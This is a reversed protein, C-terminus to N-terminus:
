KIVKEQAQDDGSTSNMKKKFHMVSAGAAGIGPLAKKQDLSATMEARLRAKQALEERYLEEKGKYTASTDEDEPIQNIEPNSPEVPQLISAQESLVTETKDFSVSVPRVAKIVIKESDKGPHYSMPRSTAGEPRRTIAPLDKIGESKRKFDQMMISALAANANAPRSIVPAPVEELVSEEVKSAEGPTETHKPAVEEVPEPKVDADSANLAPSSAIKKDLTEEAIDHQSEVPHSSVEEIPSSQMRKPKPRAKTSHTLEQDSRVPSPPGSTTTPTVDESSSRIAPRPATRPPERPSIKDSSRVATITRQSENLFSSRLASSNIDKTSESPALEPVSDMEARNDEDLATESTNVVIPEPSTETRIPSPERKPEVVVKEETKGQSPETTTPKPDSQAHKDEPKNDLSGASSTRSMKDEDGKRKGMFMSKIGFRIGRKTKTEQETHQEIKTELNTLIEPVGIEILFKTLAHESIHFKSISAQFEAKKEAASNILVTGIANLKTQGYTELEKKLANQLVELLHKELTQNM